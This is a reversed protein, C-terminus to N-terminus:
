SPTRGGPGGRPDEEIEVERIVEGEIILRAIALPPSWLRRCPGKAPGGAGMRERMAKAYARDVM